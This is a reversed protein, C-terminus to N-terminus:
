ESGGVIRHPQGTKDAEICRDIRLDVLHPAHLEVDLVDELPTVPGGGVAVVVDRGSLRAGEAGGGDGSKLLELCGLLCVTQRGCRQPTNGNKLSYRREVM